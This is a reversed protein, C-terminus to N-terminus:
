SVESGSQLRLTSLHDHQFYKDYGVGVTLQLLNRQTIPYSLSLQLFPRLIIDSEANTKSTNVNDNWDLGVSPTVLVRLDGSKYTYPLSQLQVHRAAAAAEGMLSNRLAEQAPALRVTLVMFAALWPKCSAGRPMGRTSGSSFRISDQGPRNVVISVSM